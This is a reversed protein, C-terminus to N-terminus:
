RFACMRVVMPRRSLSHTLARVCVCAHASQGIFAPAFVDLVRSTFWAIKHNTHACLYFTCFFFIYIARSILVIRNYTCKKAYITKGRGHILASRMRIWVLSGRPPSSPHIPALLSPSSVNFIEHRTGFRCPSSKNRTTCERSVNQLECCKNERKQLAKNASHIYIMRNNYKTQMKILLENVSASQSNSKGFCYLDCVKDNQSSIM